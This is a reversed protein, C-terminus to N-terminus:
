KKARTTLIMKADKSELKRKKRKLYKELSGKEKMELFRKKAVLQKIKGKSYYYPKKGQEILKSEQEELEKRIQAEEVARKKMTQVTILKSMRRQIEKKQEEDLDDRKLLKRYNEIEQERLKTVFSYHSAKPKDLTAYDEFRPDRPKPRKVLHSTVDRVPPVRVKSSM